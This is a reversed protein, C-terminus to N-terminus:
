GVGAQEKPAASAESLKCGVLLPLLDREQAGHGTPHVGGHQRPPQGVEWRLLHSTALLGQCPEMSSILQATRPQNALSFHSVAPQRPYPKHVHPTCPCTSCCAAASKCADYHRIAECQMAESMPTNRQKLRNVSCAGAGHYGLNKFYQKQAM